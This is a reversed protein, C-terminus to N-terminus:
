TLVEEYIPVRDWGRFGTLRFERKNQIKATSPDSVDAAFAYSHASARIPLFLNRPPKRIDIPAHFDIRIGSSDILLVNHFSDQKSEAAQRQKALLREINSVLFHLDALTLHEPRKGKIQELHNL